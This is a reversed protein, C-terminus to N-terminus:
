GHSGGRVEALEDLLGRNAARYNRITDHLRDSETAAESEDIVVCFDTIATEATEARSRLLVNEENLLQTVQENKEHGATVLQQVGILHERLENAHNQVQKIMDREWHDIGSTTLPQVIM